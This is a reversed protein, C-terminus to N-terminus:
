PGQCTCGGGAIPTCVTLIPCGGNCMPATDGCPVACVCDLNLTIFCAEDAGTCLGGCTTSQATGGCVSGLPQCSCAGNSFLCTETAPCPGDCVGGSLSCGPSPSATPTPTDTQTPTATPTPTPTATGPGPNKLSPVCLERTRFSNFQDDGFQNNVFITGAPAFPSTGEIRVEYCMLHSVADVLSGEENKIAPVCLRRPRKIDVVISGFEDEITVGSQRFRAGEVRYCKFHEISPVIPVVPPTLTKASPVLIYDPRVLDVRLPDDFPHFQNVVRVDRIRRFRPSLQFIPYGVLHDPANVATPDETNKAAPNCIRKPHRVRVTGDGFQDDLTVTHSTSATPHVEYCEFHNLVAPTPTGAPSM